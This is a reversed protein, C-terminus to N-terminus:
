SKKTQDTLFDRAKSLIRACGRRQLAAMAADYDMLAAWTIEKEHPIIQQNEYRALFFVVTKIGDSLGQRYIPYEDEERFGDILTVTLGTEERIERLATEKETEGAEVHGKPFGWFGKRGRVLLYSIGKEDRCFVVAGCSKERRIPEAM